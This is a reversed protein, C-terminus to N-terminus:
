DEDDPLLTYLEFLSDMTYDAQSIAPSQAGKYLVTTGVGARKGASIDDEKDGVLISQELNLEFKERAKLIMGPNPKRDFSQKRYKDLSADPHFPCYFTEAFSISHQLFEGHMWSTLALFHAESYLGRGIGSQNTIIIILFGSNYFRRCVDFIGEMFVIEQIEHVYHREENIVGDRDLFLAKNM